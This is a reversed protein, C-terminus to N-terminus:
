FTASPPAWTDCGGLGACDKPPLSGHPPLHQINRHQLKDGHITEFAWACFLIVLTVASRTPSDHGKQAGKQCPRASTVCVRAGPAAGARGGSAELGGRSM